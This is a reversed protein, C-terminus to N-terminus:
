NGFTKIIEKILTYTRVKYDELVKIYTKPEFKPLMILKGGTRLATSMTVNMAYIHFLPLLCM